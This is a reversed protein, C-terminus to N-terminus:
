TLKLIVLWKKKLNKIMRWQWWVYSRQLNKAWTNGVKSLLIGHFYWTQCKWTDRHFNALNRIKWVALWNKKLNQMVRWHRWIYSRQVKKPSVNYIQVFPVLWLSINQSKKTSPDFNVWNKLCFIPKEEFKAGSKLIM